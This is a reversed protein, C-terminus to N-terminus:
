KKVEKEFQYLGLIAGGCIMGLTDLFPHSPSILSQIVYNIWM